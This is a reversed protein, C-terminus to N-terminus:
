DANYSTRVFYDKNQTVTTDATKVYKDNVVEYWGLAKPNETGAPTVETYVTKSSTVGGDPSSAQREGDTLIIASYPVTLAGSCRTEILYKMQNYDIDFDDFMNIAGGKDAGVTYDKLNVIIGMLVDTGQVTAGEMVEVTVIKSVRLKTALATESEYLPRGINDELLLMETLWDETTFFTPNGSGKYNKRAKIAARIMAKAKTADDSQAPTVVAVKITFLDADNAIPRIHDESIKDDDSALRGDGILIARAIEEDLMMRMEAKLWAIVDFDTIDIVDDRDMKQKKYITQPSTSRKLLSFVEEKKMNGKIYGKARAEDETINAFRSRVRSFPSHSVGNMVVSVWGTDRKIWQPRNDLDHVEPFLWEVGDVGYDEAHALFSEKISGYKKGDKIITEIASQSLVSDEMEDQTTDFANQKVVDNGGKDDDKDDDESSEKGEGKKQLLYVFLAKQDANLTDFVEGVTKGSKSTEEEKEAHEVVEETEEESREVTEETEESKEEESHEVIEEEKEETAEEIVGHKYDFDEKIDYHAILESYDEEVSGDAHAIVPFEILAGPNAGALVLSLERIVGHTVNGRESKVGNAFISVNKIDHSEILSKAIKGKPTDNLKGYFWVGESRNELLAHGLVNEIDNHQHNWVIPVVKGDDEVFADRRITKGDSCRIDNKTAWGSFDYDKFKTM